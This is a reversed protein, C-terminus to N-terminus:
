CFKTEWKLSDWFCIAQTSSRYFYAMSNIALPEKFLNFIYINFMIYFMRRRSLPITIIKIRCIEKKVFKLQLLNDINLYSLYIVFLMIM